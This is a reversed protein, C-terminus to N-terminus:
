APAGHEYLVLARYAASHAPTPVGHQLGLSHVRGSLWQRQLQKGRELDEAMSSRFFVPMAALKSM